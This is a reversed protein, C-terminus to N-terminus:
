FMIVLTDNIIREDAVRVLSGLAVMGVTVSLRNECCTMTASSTAM